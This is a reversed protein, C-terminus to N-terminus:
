LHLCASLEEMLQGGKGRKDLPIWYGKPNTWNSICPLIKWEQQDKVTRKQTPPSSPGRPSERSTKFRPPERPDKQMEVM